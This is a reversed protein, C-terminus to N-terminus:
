RRDELQLDLAPRRLLPFEEPMYVNLRERAERTWRNAINFEKGRKVTETYLVIAKQESQDAFKDIEDKYAFWPESYEKLQKPVPADRVRIATEEFASGRRYMAALVWDIRRYPFVNDYAQSAAILRDFLVKAEKALAKSGTSKLKSEMVDSLAYEALLFQAEAPHDAADTAMQLGKAAFTAVTDRYYREAKTRDGMAQYAQGIRLKAQVTKEAHAQEAGFQGIFQEYALITKKHDDTKSLVEAARFMADAREVKDETQDAYRQYMAASRPYEQLSDLLNAANKLAIQRHESEKYRQDDALVLYSKVADDFEFFRSHNFGTRLLADDAFESDPYQQYIREYTKTASQFRGITEYAVAANNLARDSNPDDPAQDVLAVFRDAAAEFEGADYLIKAEQFRVANGISKLEGAFKQAEDGEGCGKELLKDTWAQAGKLDERVVHGDVIATGANISVNEDCHEDLIRSFRQEADDFHLYRQSIEGALYAMTSAQDSDPKVGVFRDYAEQLNRALEPIQLPKDFPGEMGKKPMEPFVVRGAQKEEDIHAEFATVAGLAADEQFRNDLNSDRVEAYQQAAKLYQGSYFLADAFSYRYEYSTQTDPFRELYAEYARAAIMYEETAKPDGTSRLTQAREHHDVATAVLAEEAMALAEEVADPDDWNAEFWPTGKLYNTALKDRAALAKDAEQLANWAQMIRMQIKPAAAALPWRTITAEWIRIADRFDTQEALLDGLAAYVEPVHKEAGRAKYDRDLREYGWVSDKRGDGDWDEEVYAKALYKVAEGRLSTATDAAAEGKHADAYRIFEDFKDASAKFERKLYLTWAMRILAEDYLDDEPDSAVKAYAELAPELEDFDYHIEGVRLWAESTYESDERLANCEAYGGAAFTKSDVINSDDAAPVAFKNACALALYSQRSQDFGEMEYSLTGMMYLAADGYLYTPFETAVRRYMAIADVYDPNPSEPAPADPDKELRVQYAELEKQFADEQRALRDSSTEFYLEALRFLIEPTWTADDPHLKLFDIYRTIALARLKRAKAEHDRIEREYNQELAHRGIASEVILQQGVSHATSEYAAEYRAAFAEMEDMAAAEKDDRPRMPLPAKLQAPDGNRLRRDLPVGSGPEGPRGKLKKKGKAKEKKPLAEARSPEAAFAGVGLLAAFLWAARSGSRGGARRM